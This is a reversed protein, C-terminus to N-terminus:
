VRLAFVRNSFPKSINQKLTDMKIYISCNIIHHRLPTLLPMWKISIEYIPPIYKITLPYEKYPLLHIDSWYDHWMNIHWTLMCSTVGPWKIMWKIFVVVPSQRGKHILNIVTYLELSDLSYCFINQLVHVNCVTKVNQWLQTVNGKVFVGPLLTWPALVPGVQTRDAGPPGWTLGMFRAIVSGVPNTRLESACTHDYFQHHHDIIDAHQWHECSKCNVVSSQMQEHTM